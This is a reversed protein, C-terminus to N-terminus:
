KKEEGNHAAAKKKVEETITWIHLEYEDGDDGTVKVTKDPKWDGFTFRHSVVRAGVKLNKWLHPRMLADFENGMYMMVVTADSLDKIDLADGLRIDIKDTLMAAKVNAKSEEIREPDLDIGVGRKAGAKVCAIVIRADGCGPEFVVDDKTIKALKVMQAVIDDPTPVFRIKARDNPDDQTMDVAVEDGAKFTVSKNRTIVTYNNPQWKATFKYEYSKGAEIPPTEFERTKGTAKTAKDEIFLEADDQPLIVKVRSKVTGAAPQKKEPEQGATPRALAGLGTWLVAALGIRVLTRM